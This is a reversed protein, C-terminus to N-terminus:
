NNYWWEIGHVRGDGNPAVATFLSNSLDIAANDCGGCTDVIKAQHTAGAYSITIYKGCKPNLNPNAPNAMMVHPIAVVAEDATSTWGCSGLGVDYHTIDGTYKAGSAASVASAPAASTTTVPTASTTVPAAASTTPAVYVSTTTSTTPAVYVSTTSTTSPAASTTVPAAVPTTSTTTPVAAAVSSSSTTSQVVVTSSTTTTTAVTVTSTPVASSVTSAVVFSSTLTAVSSSTSVVAVSSASSAASNRGRYGSFSAILGDAPTTQAQAARFTPGPYDVWVTTTVAVTEVVEATETVWVVDRKQLPVAAVLSLFSSLAIISSKM